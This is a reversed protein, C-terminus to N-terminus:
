PNERAFEEKEEQEEVEVDKAEKDLARAERNVARPNRQPTPKPTTKRDNKDSKARKNRNSLHISQGSKNSLLDSM